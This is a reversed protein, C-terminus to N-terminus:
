EGGRGTGKKTSKKTICKKFAAEKPKICEAMAKGEDTTADELVSVAWNAETAETDENPDTSDFAQTDFAAEVRQDMRGTCNKNLICRDLQDKCKAKSICQQLNKKLKILEKKGM